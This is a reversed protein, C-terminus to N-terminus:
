RGGITRAEASGASADAARRLGLWPRLLRWWAFGHWGGLLLAGAVFAGTYHNMLHRTTRVETALVANLKSAATMGFGPSAMESALFTLIGLPFIAYAVAARVAGRRGRGTRTLLMAACGYYAAVVPLLALPGTARTVGIALPGLVAAGVLSNPRVGGGPALYLGLLLGAGLTAGALGAAITAAPRETGRM